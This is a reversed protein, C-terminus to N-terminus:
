SESRESRVSLTDGLRVRGPSLVRGCWGGHGRMANYGGPGLTEEMRSCPACVGMIEIEATGIVLRRGKLATLNLGSIVLNRRLREPAVPPQGLFAGIATLHEAQLLTVARKSAIRGARAHDGLLGDPGIEASRVRQMPARRAPRLLIAEVRGPVAFRGMMEALEGRM